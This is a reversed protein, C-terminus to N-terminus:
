TNLNHHSMLLLSAHSFLYSKKRIERKGNIFIVNEEAFMM